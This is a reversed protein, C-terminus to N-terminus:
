RHSLSRGVAGPDPAAPRVGRWRQSAHYAFARVGHITGTPHLDEGSDRIPDFALAADTEAPLPGALTVRGFARPRPDRDAFSLILAAGRPISDLTDGLAPGAPDAGALLYLKRGSGTRYALISGYDTDFGRRPMPVHRLLRGHGATSYLLDLPRDGPVRIAVGLLDPRGDRTGIGKSIRVTVPWRAATDIFLSGTREPGGSIELDATFSRGAPHLSRRHRSRALRVALAAFTVAAAAAPLRRVPFPYGRLLV